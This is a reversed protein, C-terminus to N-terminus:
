LAARLFDTLLRNNEEIDFKEYIQRYHGDVIGPVAKSILESFAQELQEHSFTKDMVEALTVGDAYETVGPLKRFWAYGFVLVPKGGSIAEWCATGTISAVFQCNSMLDYTSVSDAVYVCNRIRSLRTYFLKNRQQFGQKPNEKAYIYWDDPLIASLKEMTLLQDSYEGGLVSTTLEPQLHLPFYVFKNTYDVSHVAHKKYERSYNIRGAQKQVIGAWTVPHHSTVSSLLVDRLLRSLMWGRKNKIKNMYFLDKRFERPITLKIPTPPVPTTDFVGMDELETVCYFRNPVQSQFAVITKVGRAKAAVYLVYDAGSHPPEFFVVSDVKGEIIVNSFFQYYLHFLNLHDFYDLGKSYNVRTYVDCFRCFEKPLQEAVCAAYAAQPDISQQALADLMIQPVYSFDKTKFNRDGERDFWMVVNVVGEDILNEVPKISLDKTWSWVIINKL